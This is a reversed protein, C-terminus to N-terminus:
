NCSQKDCLSKCHSFLALWYQIDNEASALDLLVLFLCNVISSQLAIQGNYLM